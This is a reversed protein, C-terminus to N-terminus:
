ALVKVRVTSDPQNLVILPRSQTLMERASPNWKSKIKPFIPLTVMGSGGGWDLDPIANYYLYNKADTCGMIVQKEAIYPKNLQTTPDRYWDIYSYIKVGHIEGYFVEGPQIENRELTAIVLSRVNLMKQVQENKLLAQIASTSCYMKVENCGSKEAILHRWTLIDGVPDSDEHDWVNTGALTIDNGADRQFDLEGIIQEVGDEDLERLTIKGESMAESAMLEVRRMVMDTAEALDEGMKKAVLDESVEDAENQRYSIQGPQRTQFDLATNRHLLKIYPAEVIHTKFPRDEVLFGENTPHVVPAVRRSGKIIDIKVYNGTIFKESVPFFNRSLVSKPKFLQREDIADVLTYTDVLTM